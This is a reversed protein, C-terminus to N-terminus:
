RHDWQARSDRELRNWLELSHICRDKDDGEGSAGYAPLVAKGSPLHLAEEDCSLVLLVSKM